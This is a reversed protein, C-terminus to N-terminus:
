PRNDRRADHRRPPAAMFRDLRPDEFKLASCGHPTKVYYTGSITSLPHLHLGHVVQRPMINVWCDTMSLERGSLDLELSEAYAAVHRDLRRRLEDFSPSVEHMRHASHYSTFGGPYNRASWRQGATDDERLQLCEALLRRNLVAAGGRRLPAKYILTPFLPEVPM